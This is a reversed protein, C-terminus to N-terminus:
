FTQSVYPILNIPRSPPPNYIRKESMNNMQEMYSAWNNSHEVNKPLANYRWNLSSVFPSTDYDLAKKKTPPIYPLTQPAQYYISGTNVVNNPAKM